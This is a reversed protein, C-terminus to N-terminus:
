NPSERSTSAGAAPFAPRTEIAAAMMKNGNRYFLERGNREWVPEIGGDSIQRRAWLSQERTAAATLTPAGTPDTGSEGAFAKAQGFDLVKVQGEPTVKVNAPKLDRHVIGKEHAAELAEAMQGRVRLAEPVELPGAALLEALSSGPVPELILFPAGDCQELGYIAAINPHNLAALLRAECLLKADSARYVEGMRDAGLPALIQYRGLRTGAALSM